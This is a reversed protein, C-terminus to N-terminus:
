FYHEFISIELAASMSLNEPRKDRYPASNEDLGRYSIQLKDIDAPTKGSAQLIAFSDMFFSFLCARGVVSRLYSFPYDM